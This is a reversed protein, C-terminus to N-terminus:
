YRSHKEDITKVAYAHHEPVTDAEPTKVFCYAPRPIDGVEYPPNTDTV